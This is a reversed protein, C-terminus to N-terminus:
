GGEPPFLQPLIVGINASALSLKLYAVRPLLKLSSACCRQTVRVNPAMWISVGVRSLKGKVPHRRPSWSPHPRGFRLPLASSPDRGSLWEDQATMTYRLVTRRHRLEQYGKTKHPPRLVSLRAKDPPQGILLATPRHRHLHSSNPDASPAICLPIV